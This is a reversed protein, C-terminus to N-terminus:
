KLKGYNNKLFYDAVKKLKTISETSEPLIKVPLAWDNNVFKAPGSIFTFQEAGASLAVLSGWPIAGYKRLSPKKPLPFNVRGKRIKRIMDTSTSEKIFQPKGGPWEVVELSLGRRKAEKLLLKGVHYRHCTIPRECACYFIVRRNSKMAAISLDMLTKSEKPNKIKIGTISNDIIAANGLGKLWHYRKEGILDCFANEKFNVARGSRRIRIDVFIPPKYGRSAEVRDVVEVFRDAHKGWGWFGWSFITLKKM